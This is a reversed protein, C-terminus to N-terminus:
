RKYLATNAGFGDFLCRADDDLLVVWAEGEIELGVFADAIFDGDDGGLSEAVLNGTKGSM